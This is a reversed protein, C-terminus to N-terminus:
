ASSAISECFMSKVVDVFEQSMKCLFNIGRILPIWLSAQPSEDSYLKTHQELLYIGHLILYDKLDESTYGGTPEPWSDKRMESITAELSAALNKVSISAVSEILLQNASKPVMGDTDPTIDNVASPCSPLAASAPAIGFSVGNIIVSAALNSADPFALDAGAKCKLSSMSHYRCELQGKSWGTLM